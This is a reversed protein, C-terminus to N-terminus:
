FSFLKKKEGSLLAGSLRLLLPARIRWGFSKVPKISLQSEPYQELVAAYLVWALMNVATFLIWAPNNRNLGVLQVIPLAICAVIAMLEM